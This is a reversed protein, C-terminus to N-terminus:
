GLVELCEEFIDHLTIKDNIKVTYHYITVHGESGELRSWNENLFAVVRTAEIIEGTLNEYQNIKPDLIRDLFDRPKIRVKNGISYKPGM